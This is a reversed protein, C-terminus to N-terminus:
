FCNRRMSRPPYNYGYTSHVFTVIIGIIVYVQIVLLKCKEFQKHVLQQCGLNLSFNNDKIEKGFINQYCLLHLKICISFYFCYNLIICQHKHKQIYFSSSIQFFRLQTILILLGNLVIFSFACELM